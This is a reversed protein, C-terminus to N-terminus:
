RWKRAALGKSTLFLFFVTASLDFVLYRTDVIGMSFDQMQKRVSLYEMVQKAIPGNVLGELFVVCFFGLILAFTVIAAVLQSKTMASAFTGLALFVAGIGLIGLYGAGVTRWDIDSYVDVIVAYLVTPLWLFAYFGLAALYKGAVVHTETVPATMLVEISGSRREESLLRMTLIPVVCILVLWFLWTGGFFFDLPRGGPFTPDALYGVIIGFVIGNIVLFFAAVLYALPSFFYARLERQFTALVGSM